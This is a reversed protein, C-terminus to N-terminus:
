EGAKSLRTLFARKRKKGDIYHYTVFEGNYVVNFVGYASPASDRVQQSSELKVARVKIETEAALDRVGQVADPISPATPCNHVSSQGVAV